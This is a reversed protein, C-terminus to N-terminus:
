PKAKKTPQNNPNGTTTVMELPVGAHYAAQIADDKDGNIHTVAIVEGKKNKITYEQSQLPAAM